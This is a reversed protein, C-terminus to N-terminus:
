LNCDKQNSIFISLLYLPLLVKLCLVIISYFTYLYHRLINHIVYPKRETNTTM